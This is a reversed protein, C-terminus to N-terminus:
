QGPCVDPEDNQFALWKNASDSPHESTDMFVLSQLNYTFGHLKYPLSRLEAM